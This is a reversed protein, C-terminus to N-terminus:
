LEEFEDVVKARPFATYRFEFALTVVSTGEAEPLKALIKPYAVLV